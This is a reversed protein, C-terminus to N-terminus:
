VLLACWTALFNSPLPPCSAYCAPIDCFMLLMCYTQREEDMRSMAQQTQPVAALWPHSVVPWQRRRFIRHITDGSICFRHILQMRSLFSQLKQGTSWCGINSECPLGVPWPVPPEAACECDEDGARPGPCGTPIGDLEMYPVIGICSGM